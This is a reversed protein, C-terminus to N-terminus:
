RSGRRRRCATRSRACSSGFSAWAAPWAAWPAAVEAMDRAQLMRFLTQERFKRIRGLSKAIDRQNDKEPTGGLDNVSELYWARGKDPNPAVKHDWPQEWWEAARATQTALLCGAALSIWTRM